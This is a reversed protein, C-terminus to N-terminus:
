TGSSDPGAKDKFRTRVRDGCLALFKEGLVPAHEHAWDVPTKGSNDAITPDAGLSLLLEATQFDVETNSQTAGDVDADVAIHLATQGYDDPRNPDAGLEALRRLLQLDGDDAAIHFLTWGGPGVAAAINEKNKLLSKIRLDIERDSM